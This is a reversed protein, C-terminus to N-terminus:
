EKPLFVSVCPAPIEEVTSDASEVFGGARESGYLLMIWAFMVWPRIYIFLGATSLYFCAHSMSM